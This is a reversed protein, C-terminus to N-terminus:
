VADPPVMDLTVTVATGESPQSVLSIEGGFLRVIERVLSLGLGLGARQSRSADARYFREFAHEAAEKSMGIGDDAVTLEAKGEGGRLRVWIHGGARGYKVANDLLNQLIREYLTADAAAFIGERIDLEVKTEAPFAFDAAFGATLVSLDLPVLPVAVTNAMRTFELLGDTIAKLRKSQRLIVSLSADKEAGDSAEQLAYEAESLIVTLPTRLEHAVDSTFREHNSLAEGLSDLLANYDAALSDLEADAPVKSLRRTFDKSSIIGHIERRMRDIPRVARRVSLVNLTVGLAALVAAFATVAIAAAWWVVHSTPVMGRLYIDDRGELSVAFDYVYYQRGEATVTSVMGQRIPLDLEAPFSANKLTGDSLYVGLYVGGVTYDFDDPVVGKAESIIAARSSVTDMLNNRTNTGIVRGGAVTAAIVIVAALFIIILSNIAVIRKGFKM